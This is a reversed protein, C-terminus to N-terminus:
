KRRSPLDLFFHPFPKYLSCLIFSCLSYTNDQVEWTHLGTVYGSGSINGHIYHTLYIIGGCRKVQGTHHVKQISAFGLSFLRNWNVTIMGLLKLFHFLFLWSTPPIFPNASFSLRRVDLFFFDFTIFIPFCLISKNIM